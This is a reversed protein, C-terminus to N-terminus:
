PKSAPLTPDPIKLQRALLRLKDLGDFSKEMAPDRRVLIAAVELAAQCRQRAHPLDGAHRFILAQYHFVSVKNQLALTDSPERSLFDAMEREARALPTAADSWKGHGVLMEGLLEDECFQLYPNRRSQPDRRVLAESLAVAERMYFEAEAKRGSRDLQTALRETLVLLADSENSGQPNFLVNAKAMEYGARTAEVAQPRQAPDRDAIYGLGGARNSAAM